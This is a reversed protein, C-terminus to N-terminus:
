VNKGGQNNRYKTPSIGFRKKFVYSFYNPEIYGVQLSIEYTKLETTSLLRVAQDMRVDTLYTVFSMGTEKKFLTSFYAPSVHLHDCLMEVSIDPDSYHTTIFQKARDATARASYTRERRILTSIKLCTDLFWNALEELSDFRSLHFNGDFDKGFLEEIDLQYARVIKLLEAMMEIFYLQFQGLPLRAARFQSLFREAATHISEPTGLKIASILERSEQESFQLQASPDPEVDGIYIARGAGMLVRYDLASRAGQTSYYLSSLDSCPAGVGATLALNLFRRAQTCVHNLDDILTLVQSQEDFSAIIAVYDNYILSRQCCHRIGEDALQKVSLPILESEQAFASDANGADIHLLVVTWWSGSLDIEYLAAQERIRQSSMRGDILRCYFQERLLPLSSQYHARLAEIDRKEAFETDLQTKLRQLVETLEAADIPKLIYQVVNLQIAKQAYEFDDFGSFLVLKTAPMREALHKALTLGDMFPMKIDTLVVDPHLQESLELAEQGNEASSVLEFGNGAWDIKCRIGDRIEAEDDVIIVKYYSM